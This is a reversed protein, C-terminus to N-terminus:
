KASVKPKIINAKALSTRFSLIDEELAKIKKGHRNEIRNIGLETGHVRKELSDLRNEMAQFGNNM